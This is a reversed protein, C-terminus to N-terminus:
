VMATRRSHNTSDHHEQVLFHRRWEVARCLIKWFRLTPVPSRIGLAQGPTRSDATELICPGSCTHWGGTVSIPGRTWRVLHAHLSPQQRLSAKGLYQKPKQPWINFAIHSGVFFFLLSKRAGHHARALSPSCLAKCNRGPKM